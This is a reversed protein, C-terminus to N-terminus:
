LSETFYNKKFPSLSNWWELVIKQESNALLDNKVFPSEDAIDLSNGVLQKGVFDVKLTTLEPFLVPGGVLVRPLTIHEKKLLSELRKFAYSTLLNIEFILAYDQWFLELFNILSSGRYSTKLRSVLTNYFHPDIKKLSIKNLRASNKFTTMFGQWHVLRPQEEFSKLFGYAPLLTKLEAEKDIYLENGIIKLFSQARYTIKYKKYVKDIPGNQTYIKSLMDYVLSTPRPAIETVETKAYWFSKQADLLSDLYVNQQYTINAISTIPRAQLFYWKGDKVCWEIDQPAQYLNEIQKFNEVAQVFQPLNTKFLSQTWFFKLQEPKIKGGVVAEGRGTHYEVVMERGGLPNRTFTIGAYDPEIYEQIICAFKKIDGRLYTRAQVLVESIAEFLGASPVNIRTSFQGAFSETAGDEILASSRVAYKKFPLQVVIEKLLENMITFDIVGKSTFIKNVVSAPIVGFAPVLFGEDNLKKLQRAKAGVLSNQKIHSSLLLM